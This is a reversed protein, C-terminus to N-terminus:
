RRYLTVEASLGGSWTRAELVPHTPAKGSNTSIFFRAVTRKNIM